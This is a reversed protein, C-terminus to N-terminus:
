RHMYRPSKMKKNPERKIPINELKDDTSVDTRAEPLMLPALNQPLITETTTTPVYNNDISDNDITIYTPERISGGSGEQSM